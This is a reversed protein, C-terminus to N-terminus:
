ACAAQKPPPTSTHVVDLRNFLSTSGCRPIFSISLLPPPTNECQCTVTANVKNFNWTSVIKQTEIDARYMQNPNEPTLLNMKSEANTLM